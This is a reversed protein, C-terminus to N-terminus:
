AQSGLVSTLAVKVPGAPALSLWHRLVDGFVPSIPQSSSCRMRGAAPRRGSHGAACEDGRRGGASAAETIRIVGLM